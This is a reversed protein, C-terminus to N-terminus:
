INSKYGHMKPQTYGRINYRKEHGYPLARVGFGEGLPLPAKFLVKSIRSVSYVIKFWRAGWLNIMM